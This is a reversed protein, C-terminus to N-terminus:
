IFGLTLDYNELETIRRFSCNTIKNEVFLDRIKKTVYVFATEEPSFIDSGDWTEEDFLMGLYVKREPSNPMIPPLTAPKSLNNNISGCNGKIALAKYNHIGEISLQSFDVDYAKWGTVKNENLISLVRPSVLYSGGISLSIFDYLYKGEESTLVLRELKDGNKVYSFDTISQLPSLRLAKKEDNDGLLYINEYNM